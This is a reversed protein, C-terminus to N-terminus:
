PGREDHTADKKRTKTKTPKAPAMALPPDHAPRTEFIITAAVIWPANVLDLDVLAPARRNPIERQAALSALHMQRDADGPIEAEPPSM